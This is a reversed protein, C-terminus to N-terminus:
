ARPALVGAAVYFLVAVPGTVLVAAILGLRVLLPDTNFSDALGAAVGMLKGDERNLMFRNM